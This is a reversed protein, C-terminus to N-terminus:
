GALGAARRAAEFETGAGLIELRVLMGDRFRWSAVAQAEIQADSGPMTRAFHVETIVEDGRDHLALIEQRADGLMEWQAKVVEHFADIGRRTGPELASPPNVYEVDPDVLVRIREFDRDNWAETVREVVEPASPGM